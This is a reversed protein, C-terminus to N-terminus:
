MTKQGDAIIKKEYYTARDAGSAKAKKLEEDIIREFNAQPQAGSLFRGNIFFAPTGAAGLAVAQQQDAEIKKDYKGSKYCTEFASANLGIQSAYKKLDADELQRQNAFMADHMEWFKGQEHACEAAKAAPKARQHFSLPNHKFVVRLDDKYKEQLAKITPGVRNCYPCQFDSVEIITVWADKGGKTASDGVPFAYTKAPDPGRPRQPAPRAVAAAGKDLKAMIEKQNKKLEDVDARSVCGATFCGAALM